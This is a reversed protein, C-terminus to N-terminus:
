TICGWTTPDKNEPDRCLMTHIYIYVYIHTHTYIYIYINVCVCVRMYVRVYMGMFGWRFRFGGFRVTFVSASVRVLM